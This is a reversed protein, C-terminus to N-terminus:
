SCRPGPFMGKLADLLKRRKFRSIERSAVDNRRDALARSRSTTDLFSKKTLVAADSNM